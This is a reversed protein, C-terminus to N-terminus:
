GRSVLMELLVGEEKYARLAEYQLPPLHLMLSNILSTGDTTGNSGEGGRGARCRTGDAGGISGTGGREARSRASGRGSRWEGPVVSELTHVAEATPSHHLARGAHQPDCRCFLSLLAPLPASSAMYQAGIIFLECRGPEQQQPMQRHAVAPM